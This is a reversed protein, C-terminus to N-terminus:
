RRLRQGMDAVALEHSRPLRVAVQKIETRVIRLARETDEAHPHHGPVAPPPALRTSRTSERRLILRSLREPVNEDFPRWNVHALGSGTFGVFDYLVPFRRGRKAGAGEDYGPPLWVALKRVHPDGLPNDALIASAHELVVLTGQPRHPAKRAM